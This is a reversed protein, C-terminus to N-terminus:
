GLLLVTNNSVITVVCAENPKAISETFLWKYQVSSEKPIIILHLASPDLIVIRNYSFLGVAIVSSMWFLNTTNTYKYVNKFNISILQLLWVKSEIEFNRALISDNNSFLQKLM